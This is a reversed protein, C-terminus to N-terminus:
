KKEKEIATIKIVEGAMCVTIAERQFIYKIWVGLGDIQYAEDLNLPHLRKGNELTILFTCGDVDYKTVVGKTFGQTKKEDGTVVTEKAVKKNSKCSYFNILCFLIFLVTKIFHKHM